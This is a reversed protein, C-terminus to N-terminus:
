NNWIGQIGQAQIVDFSQNPLSCGPTFTYIITGNEDRNAQATYNKFLAPNEQELATLKPYHTSVLCLANKFNGLFKILGYATEQGKEPSTSKFLEDFVVLSFQSHLLKNQLTDILSNAKILETTFLSNGAQINDWHKFFTVIKIFPTCELHACPVITFTQALLALLAVSKLNTSKGAANPGTIIITNPENIGISLTSPTSHQYGLFPNWFGQANIFPQENSAYHAFSYYVAKDKHERYLQAISLYADLEGLAQVAAKCPEANKVHKYASLINGINSLLSPDGQFTNKKLMNILEKSDQSTFLSHLQNFHTLDQAFNKEDKILTYL